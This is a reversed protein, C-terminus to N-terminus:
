GDLVHFQYDSSQLGRGTEPIIQLEQVAPGQHSRLNSVQFIQTNIVAKRSCLSADFILHFFPFM